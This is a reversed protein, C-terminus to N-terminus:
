ASANQVTRAAEHPEGALGSLSHLAPSAGAALVAVERLLCRDQEMLNIVDDSSLVLPGIVQVIQTETANAAIQLLTRINRRDIWSGADDHGQEM